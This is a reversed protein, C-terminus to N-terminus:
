SVVFFFGSEIEMIGVVNEFVVWDPKWLRLIRIFEKYLWNDSNGRNNTRRNSTSFGQCPAGGFLITIGKKLDDPISKIKRIDSNIVKTQPHNAQYTQTALTNKEVAYKVLIGASEAGLSMGGAGSFLDLGILKSHEV